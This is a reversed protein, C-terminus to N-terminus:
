VPQSFIREYVLVFTKLPTFISNLLKEVTLFQSFHHFHLHLHRGLYMLM